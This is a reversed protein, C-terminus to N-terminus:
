FTNSFVACRKCRFGAHGCMESKCVSNPDNIKQLVTILEKIADSCESKLVKFESKFTIYESESSVEIDDSKITTNNTDLLNQWTEDRCLANTLPTGYPLPIMIDRDNSGQFHIYHQGSLLNYKLTFM